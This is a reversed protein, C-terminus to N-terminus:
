EDDEEEEAEEGVVDAAEEEEEAEEDGSLLERAKMEVLKEVREPFSLDIYGPIIKFM